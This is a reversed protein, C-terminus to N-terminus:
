CAESTTDVEDSASKPEPEEKQNAPDNEPGFGLKCLWWELSLFPAEEEEEEQSGIYLGYSQNHLCYMTLLMGWHYIVSGYMRGWLELFSENKRALSVFTIYVPYMSGVSWQLLIATGAAIPTPLGLITMPKQRSAGRLLLGVPVWLLAYALFMTVESWYAIQFCVKIETTPEYEDLVTNVHQQPSLSCWLGGTLFGSLSLVLILECLAVAKSDACCFKKLVPSINESSDIAFHAMGLGSITFFVAFGIRVIWYGLLGYNDDLGSNPYLWSDIGSLVFAGGMFVQSLIGTKRVANNPGFVSLHFAFLFCCLSLFFDSAWNIVTNDVAESQCPEDLCDVPTLYTLGVVLGIYIASVVLLGATFFRCCFIM